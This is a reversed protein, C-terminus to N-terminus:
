VAMEFQGSTSMVNVTQLEMRRTTTGLMMDIKKVEQRSKHKPLKDLLAASAYSSGAGTDLLARCKKGEVVVVVVPYVSLLRGKKPNKDSIESTHESCVSTHHKRNCKRCTSRSKCNAAQHQPGTCNFCLGKRALIKKRDEVSIVKTCDVSKHTNDECYVCARTDRRTDRTHFFPRDRWKKLQDLLDNFGWDQWGERGRVLDSKIGKLKDLTARVNGKVDALKGLTELSQVSYRLQRYFETVKKPNAGNIAPLSM